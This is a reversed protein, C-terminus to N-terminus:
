TSFGCEESFLIRLHWVIVEIAFVLIKKKKITCAAALPAEGNSIPKTSQLAGNDTTRVDGTKPYITPKHTYSAHSTMDYCGASTQHILSHKKDRVLRWLLRYRYKPPSRLTRPADTRWFEITAM